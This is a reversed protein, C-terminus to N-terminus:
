RRRWKSIAWATVWAMGVVATVLLVVGTLNILLELVPLQYLRVAMIVFAACALMSCYWVFKQKM